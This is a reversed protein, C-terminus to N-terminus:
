LAGQLFQVAETVIIAVWFGCGFWHLSADFIERDYSHYIAMVGNAVALTGVIVATM